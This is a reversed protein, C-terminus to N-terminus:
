KGAPIPQRDRFTQHNGPKWTKGGDDTYEMKSEFGSATANYRTFRLRSKGGDATDFEGSYRTDDGMRGTMVWLKGDAGVTSMEIKQDSERVYFLIASAMGPDPMESRGALVRDAVVWEFHYSGSVARAVSGDDGLFETDVTWTGVVDHLEQVSKELNAARRESNRFGENDLPRIWVNRFRVPNGHDQLFLPGVQTERYQEALSRVYDTTRYLFPRFGSKPEGFRTKNQVLQGNMWASLEGAESINGADDLRPARYRIDCVQWQGPERAANVLPPAFGYLSGIDQATVEEKGWSNLIQLEYGGHLYVGSNGATEEPVLFEVHIEADRFHFDSVIHNSHDGNPTSTVVGAAIEWDMPGGNRSLFLNTGQGDLLVVADEPPAVPLADQSPSFGEAKLRDFAPAHNNMLRQFEEETLGLRDRLASVSTAVSFVPFDSAFLFRELGIRKMASALKGSDEDSTPPIGDTEDVLIAGSLDFSLSQGPSAQGSAQYLEYEEMLIASATRFGGAAGLHALYLELGECPGVVERWFMRSLARVDGAPEATFLHLLVPMRNDAAWRFVNKLKEVHEAERLDVGCAPLHLKIGGLGRMYCRNMEAFAYDRLPNVSFFGVARDPFQAVARAIMDNERAVRQQEINGADAGEPIPFETEPSAYLHAMSVLFAGSINQSEFILAPDTYAADERSFEVGLAKWDAVLQPSLIHVHHDYVPKGSIAQYGSAVPLGMWLVAAAFTLRGLPSKM